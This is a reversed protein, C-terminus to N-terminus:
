VGPKLSVNMAYVRSSSSPIVQVYGFNLFGDIHYPSRMVIAPYKGANGPRYIDCRLLIGDRMPIAADREIRILDAM